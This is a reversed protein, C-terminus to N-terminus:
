LVNVNCVKEDVAVVQCSNELNVFMRGDIFKFEDCVIDVDNENNEDFSLSDTISKNDYFLPKFPRQSSKRYHSNNPM